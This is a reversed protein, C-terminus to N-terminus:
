RKMEMPDALIWNFKLKRQVTIIKNECPFTYEPLLITKGQDSRSLFMRTYSKLSDKESDPVYLTLIEPTFPQLYREEEIEIKITDSSTIDIDTKYNKLTKKYWDINKDHGDKLGRNYGVLGSGFGIIFCVISFIIIQKKM